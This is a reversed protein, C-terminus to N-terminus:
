TELPSSLRLAPPGQPHSEPHGCGGPLLVMSGAELASVSSILLAALLPGELGLFLLTPAARGTFKQRWLHIPDM